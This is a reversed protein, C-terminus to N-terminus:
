KTDTQRPTALLKDLTPAMARQWLGYGKENPHLLDPMVDKSLTGDANLLATNINLFHVSRGDAYGAILKNVRENISRLFDDPKEGRPFIALLLV